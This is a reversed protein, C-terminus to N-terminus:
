KSYFYIRIQNTFMDIFKMKIFVRHKQLKNVNLDTQSMSCKKGNRELHIITQSAIM